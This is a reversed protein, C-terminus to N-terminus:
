PATSVTITLIDNYTGAALVSSGAYQNAKVRITSTAGNTALGSVLLGKTPSAPGAINNGGTLYTATCTTANNTAILQAAACASTASAANGVLSLQVDYPAKNAYGSPVAGGTLLGGNTSVVGVRSPGTCDLKFNYTQDFGIVDFNPANLSGSPANGTLFACRTGVSATVAINTAWFNPSAYPTPYQGVPYVTQYDVGASQAEAASAGTIATLALLAKITSLRSM